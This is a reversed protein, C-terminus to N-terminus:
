GKLPRTCRQVAAVGRERPSGALFQQPSVPAVSCCPVQAATAHGREPHQLRRNAVETLCQLNLRVVKRRQGVKSHCQGRETVMPRRALPQAGRQSPVVAGRLQM